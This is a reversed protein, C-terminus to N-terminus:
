TIKNNNTIVQYYEITKRIAQDLSINVYLGLEKQARTINPIYREIPNQADPEKNIRINIPSHSQGAILDALEAISIGINSGVNYPRLHQGNFLITWLWISLDSSYLYSRLPTGDGKIIIDRGTIADSIFNGIAFHANLPLHPGVFAFCRAIKVECGSNMLSFSCLNEAARKAEAYVSLPNLPDPGGIYEEPIHLIESPQLGYVAGSSIFLLKKAGCKDAFELTRKTGSVITEFMKGPNTRTLEASAETAAHIIFSYTGDPFSFDKVDGQIWDLDKWNQLHPMKELYSQTSRSLVTIKAGLKKKKNIHLFSELLWSGFFGTGGTVFLREGRMDNWLSDTLNFVHELDQISVPNVPV